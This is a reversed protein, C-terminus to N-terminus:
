EAPQETLTQRERIGQYLLFVGLALPVLPWWDLVWELSINFANELLLATGVLILLAGGFISGGPGPLPTTPLPIPEGGEVAQNYLSAHRGADIMNYLWFFPLFIGFMPLWPANSTSSLVSIIFGAAVVHTFGRRYYGVYIQGMGPLASLFFALVPSKHRPDFASFKARPPPYAAPPPPPAAPYPMAPEPLATTDSM